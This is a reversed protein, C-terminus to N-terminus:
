RLKKIEEKKEKIKRDYVMRMIFNADEKLSQLQRLKLDLEHIKLKNTGNILDEKELMLREIEIHAEGAMRIGAGGAARWMSIHEELGAIRADIESIRKKKAEDM